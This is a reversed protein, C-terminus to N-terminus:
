KITIIYSVTTVNGAEDAVYYYIKYDGILKATFSKNIIADDLEVKTLSHSVGTPDILCVYIDFVESYNDKISISSVKITAGVKGDTIPNLIVVNPVEKDM